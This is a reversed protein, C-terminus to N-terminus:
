LLLRPSWFTRCAPIHGLSLLKNHFIRLGCPARSRPPRLAHDYPHGLSWANRDPRGPENGGAPGSHRSHTQLCALRALANWSEDRHAEPCPQVFQSCRRTTRHQVRFGSERPGRVCEALRCQPSRWGPGFRDAPEASANPGQAYSLSWRGKAHEVAAPIVEGDITAWEQSLNVNKWRLGCMEAVNMSTLVAVNAMERAPSPLADLLLDLQDWTLAHKEKRQMEPLRVHRAPNEGSYVGVAKAYEFVASTANKLHLAAQVSYPKQRARKEIIFRPEGTLPDKGAKRVRDKGITYTKRLLDLCMKQVQEHQVDRLALDGLEALLHALQTGYHERGGIKLALKYEPNFRREVFDKLKMLSQPVLEAQNVKSLVMDWALRDAQRYTLAGPGDCRGIITSPRARKVKGDDGVVDERWRLRWWGNEKYLHGHKQLRRRAMDQEEKHLFLNGVHPGGATLPAGVPLPKM